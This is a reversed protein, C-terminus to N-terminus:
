PQNETDTAGVNPGPAPPETLRAMLGTLKQLWQNSQNKTVVEIARGKLKLLDSDELDKATIVVVPVDPIDGREHCQDLFQFGDMEPMMLDLLVLNFDNERLKDIGIRGNEATTVRFGNKTITRRLTERVAEDDEIVLIAATESEGCYKRITTLLKEAQVPKVLFDSAGLAMGAYDEELMSVIIVPIGALRPNSKAARIFEWGTMGPMFVDLTIVDPRIEEALRIGDAGSEAAWTRYGEKTLQRILLERASPDDDVVLVKPLGKRASVVPNLVPTVPKAVHVTSIESKVMVSTVTEVIRAIRATFISGKEPESKATLGGGMMECLKRSIPLGLGTGGFERAISNEAQAFVEFVKECQEPTMGIGTDRVKLVVVEHGETTTDTRLDLSVAGNQTFKCANSLLNNLVQRLKIKDAHVTYKEHPCEVDLRNGSREALPRIDEGVERILSILDFDEVSLTMRGAEIKSLDLIDNILTLLLKGSRNIKSVDNCLDDRGEESLDEELMESYGIVANLPTRLEHSMNALFTSKARNASEAKEKARKLDHNARRQEATRIEVQAELSQQHKRLENERQEIQDLMENFGHVLQGVEDTGSPQARVRYNREVSVIRATNALDLIPDAILQEIKRGMLFALLAVILVAVGLISLFEGIFRTQRKPNARLYLKGLVDENDPNRILSVLELTAPHFGPPLKPDIDNPLSIPPLQSASETDLALHQVPPRGGDSRHIVALLNTGTGHFLAAATLNTNNVLAGFVDNFEETATSESTKLPSELEFSLVQALTELEHRNEQRSQKLAWPSVVGGVLLLAFVSITVIMLRLKARISLNQLLIM